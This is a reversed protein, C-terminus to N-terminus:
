TVARPEGIHRTHVNYLEYASWSLARDALQALMARTPVFFIFALMRRVLRVFLSDVCSNAWCLIKDHNGEFSATRVSLTPPQM